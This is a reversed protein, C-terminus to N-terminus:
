AIKKATKINITPGDPPHPYPIPLNILYLGVAIFRLGNITLKKLIYYLIKKNLVM